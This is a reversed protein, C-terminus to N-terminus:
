CESRPRCKRSKGLVTSIIGMEKCCGSQCNDNDECLADIAKIGKKECHNIYNNPDQRISLAWTATTWCVLGDECEEDRNCGKGHEPIKKQCENAFYTNCVLTPEAETKGSYLKGEATMSCERCCEWDSDCTEDLGRCPLCCCITDGESKSGCIGDPTGKVYKVPETPCTAQDSWECLGTALHLPKPIEIESGRLTVIQPNITMLILYSCLVLLLGAIAGGIYGKAQNVKEVSGSSTLWIVGGVMMMVVALLGVVIVALNYFRQIYGALGEGPPISSEGLLDVQLSVASPILICSCVGGSCRLKGKKEKCIAGDGPEWKTTQVKGGSEAEQEVSQGTHEDVMTQGSEVEASAVGANYVFVIQLVSLVVFAILLSSIFIKINKKM